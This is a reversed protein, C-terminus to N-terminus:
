SSPAPPWRAIPRAWWRRTCRGHGRGAQGPEAHGLSRRLPGRASLAFRPVARRLPDLLGLSKEWQKLQGAAQGGHLLTLVQFDKASPDKVQEYAALAEAFKNQQFLCEAEM